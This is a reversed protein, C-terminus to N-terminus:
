FEVEEGHGVGVEPRLIGVRDSAELFYGLLEKHLAVDQTVKVHFEGTLARGGIAGVGMEVSRRATTLLNFSISFYAFTKFRQIHKNDIDEYPEPLRAM